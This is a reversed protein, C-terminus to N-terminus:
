MLFKCEKKNEEYFEQMDDRWIQAQYLAHTNTYKHTRVDTVRRRSLSCTIAHWCTHMAHM